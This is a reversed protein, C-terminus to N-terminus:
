IADLKLGGGAVRGLHPSRRCAGHSGGDAAEPTLGGVM